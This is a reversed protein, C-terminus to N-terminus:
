KVGQCARVAMRLAAYDQVFRPWLANQPAAQMEDAVVMQQKVSYSKLQLDVCANFSPSSSAVACASLPLLAILRLLRRLNSSRM